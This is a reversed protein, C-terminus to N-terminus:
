ACGYLFREKKANFSVPQHDKDFEIVYSMWLRASALPMEETLKYWCFCDKALDFRAGYVVYKHHGVPAMHFACYMGPSKAKYHVWSLITRKSM